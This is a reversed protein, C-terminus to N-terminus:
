EGQYERNTLTRYEARLLANTEKLATLEAEHAAIVQARLAIIEANLAAIKRNQWGQFATFIALAGERGTIIHDGGGTIMTDITLRVDVDPGAEDLYKILEEGTMMPETEKHEITPPAVEKEVHRPLEPLSPPL